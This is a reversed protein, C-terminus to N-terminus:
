REGGTVSAQRPAPNDLAHEHAFFGSTSERKPTSVAGIQQLLGLNDPMMWDRVILGDRFQYIAIVKLEVDKGTPPEGTLSGTHRGRAHARAVVKEGDSVLDDVTWTWGSFARHNMRVLEKVHEIGAGQLAPDELGFEPHFLVDLLDVDCPTFVDDFLRRVVAENAGSPTAAGANGTTETM